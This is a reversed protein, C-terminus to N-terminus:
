AYEIMDNPCPLDIGVMNLIMIGNAQSIICVGLSMPLLWGLAKGSLSRMSGDCISWKNRRRRARESNLLERPLWERKSGREPLRLRRVSPM